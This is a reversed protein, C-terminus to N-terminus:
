TTAPEERTPKDNRCGFPLAEEREGRLWQVNGETVVVRKVIGGVVVGLTSSRSYMCTRIVTPALGCKCTFTTAQLQYPQSPPFGNYM